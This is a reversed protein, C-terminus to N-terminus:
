NLSKINNNTLKGIQSRKFEDACVIINIRNKQALSIIEFTDILIDFGTM